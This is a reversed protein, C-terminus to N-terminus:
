FGEQESYAASEEDSMLDNLYRYEDYAKILESPIPQNRSLYATALKYKAEPTLEPEPKTVIEYAPTLMGEDAKILALKLQKRLEPPCDPCSMIWRMQEASLSIRFKCKTTANTAQNM